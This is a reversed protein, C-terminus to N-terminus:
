KILISRWHKERSLTLNQFELMKMTKNVIAWVIGQM